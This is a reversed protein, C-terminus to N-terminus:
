LVSFFIIHVQNVIFRKPIKSRLKRGKLFVVIVTLNGIIGVPAISLQVIEMVDLYNINEKLSLETKNLNVNM